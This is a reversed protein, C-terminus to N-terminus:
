MHAVCRNSCNSIMSKLFNSLSFYACLSDSQFLTESWDVSNKEIKEKVQYKKKHDAHMLYLQNWKQIQDHQTKKKHDKYNKKDDKRFPMKLWECTIAASVHVALPKEISTRPNCVYYTDIRAHRSWLRLFFYMIEVRVLLINFRIYVSDNRFLWILLSDVCLSM